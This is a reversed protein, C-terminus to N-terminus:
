WNKLICTNDGLKTSREKANCERGVQERVGPRDTGEIKPDICEFDKSDGKDACKQWRSVKM